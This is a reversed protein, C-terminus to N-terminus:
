RHLLSADPGGASPRVDHIGAEDCIRLTAVGGDGHVYALQGRGFTLADLGSVGIGIVFLSPESWGTNGVGIAALVGAGPQREIKQVLERQATENEALSRRRAQPNWATIFGWSRSGVHSGLTAPLPQDISIAAWRAPDLCVQYTTSRFAELLVEDM